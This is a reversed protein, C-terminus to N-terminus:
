NITNHEPSNLADKNVVNNLKGDDNISKSIFLVVCIGTDEDILLLLKETTNEFVGQKLQHYNDKAMNQYKQVMYTDDGTFSYGQAFVIGANNYMIITIRGTSLDAVTIASMEVNINYTIPGGYKETKLKVMASDKTLGLYSQALCSSVSITVLLVVLLLSKTMKSLTRM